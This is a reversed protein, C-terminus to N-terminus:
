SPHNQVKRMGAYIADLVDDSAHTETRQFLTCSTALTGTAFLGVLVLLAAILRRRGSGSRPEGPSIGRRPEASSISAAM